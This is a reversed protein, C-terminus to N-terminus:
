RSSNTNSKKDSRWEEEEDSSGSGESEEAEQIYFYVDSDLWFKRVAHKLPKLCLVHEGSM